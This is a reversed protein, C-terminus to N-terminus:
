SPGPMTPRILRSRAARRRASPKALMASAVAEPRQRLMLDGDGHHLRPAGDGTRFAAHRLGVCGPVPPSVGDSLPVLHQGLPKDHPQGAGQQEARDQAQGDAQAPQRDIQQHLRGLGGGEGGHRAALDGRGLAPAAGQAIQRERGVGPDVGADGHRQPDHATQGAAYDGGGQQRRARDIRDDGRGAIHPDEEPCDRGLHRHQGQRRQEHGAQPDLAAEDQRDGDADHGEDEETQRGAATKVGGAFGFGAGQLFGVALATLGLADHGAAASKQGGDGVVQAGRDAGDQGAGMFQRADGGGRGRGTLLRGHDLVGPQHHLPQQVVQQVVGAEVGPAQLDLRPIEVQAVQEVVSEAQPLARDPGLAQAQAQVARTIHRAHNLAVGHAQALHQVVQDGVGDFEGIRADDGDAQAGPAILGPQM